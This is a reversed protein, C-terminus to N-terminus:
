KMDRYTLHTVGTGQIVRTCQLGIPGIGLHDFLSVGGIHMQAGRDEQLLFSTDTASLQARSRVGRAARENLLQRIDSVEQRVPWAYTPVRPRVVVDGKIRFTSLSHLAIRARFRTASHDGRM